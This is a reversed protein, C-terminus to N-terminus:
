GDDKTKPELLARAGENLEECETCPTYLSVEHACESEVWRIGDGTKVPTM